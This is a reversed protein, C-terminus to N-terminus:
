ASRRLAPQEPATQEVAVGGWPGTQFVSRICVTYTATNMGPQQIYVVGDGDARLAAELHARESLINFAGPRYRLLEWLRRSLKMMPANDGDPSAGVPESYALADATRTAALIVTQPPIRSRDALFVGAHCADLFLFKKGRISGVVDFLLRPTLLAAAGVVLGEETGHGSFQFFTHADAGAAYGRQRLLELITALGVTRPTEAGHVTTQYGRRRLEHAIRGVSAQLVLQEMDNRPCGAIGLYWAPKLAAEFGERLGRTAPDTFVATTDGVIFLDRSLGIRDGVALPYHLGPRLRVGNRFTGNLSNLDQITYAEGERRIGVHNRSMFPTGAINIVLELDHFDPPQTRGTYWTATDRWQGPDRGIQASAGITVLQGSNHGLILHEM